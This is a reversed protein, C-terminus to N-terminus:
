VYHILLLRYFSFITFFVFCFVWYPIIISNLNLHTLHFQETIIPQQVSPTLTVHCQAAKLSDRCRNITGEADHTRALRRQAYIHATADIIRKNCWTHTEWSRQASHSSMLSGRHVNEDFVCVSNWHGSLVWPCAPLSLSLSLSHFHVFAAETVACTYLVHILCM